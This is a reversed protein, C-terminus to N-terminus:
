EFYYVPKLEIVSTSTPPVLKIQRFVFSSIEIRYGDIKMRIISM